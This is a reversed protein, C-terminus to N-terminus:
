NRELVHNNWKSDDHSPLQVTMAWVQSIAPGTKMPLPPFSQWICRETTLMWKGTGFCTDRKRFPQKYVPSQQKRIHHNCLCCCTIVHLTVDTCLTDRFDLLGFNERINYGNYKLSLIDQFHCKLNERRRTYLHRDEPNNCRTIQYFNVSTESTSVAEKKPAIYRYSRSRSTVVSFVAMKQKFTGGRGQQLSLKNLILRGM